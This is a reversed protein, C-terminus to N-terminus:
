VSRRNASSAAKFENLIMELTKGKTEPMIMCAFCVAGFCVGAFLVFCGSPTLASSVSTFFYTVVFGTSWNVLTAVACAPSRVHVPFIEGMFLWPVPGMGLSFAVIYGVLSMLALVSPNSNPNLFFFALVLGSACMGGASVALLMTRGAKDMLVISVGTFAVQFSMIIAGGVNANSLGATELIQGSYFIVANIGSFQQFLMIAVGMTLPRRMDPAMLMSIVSQGHQGADSVSPLRENDEGSKSVAEYDVVHNIKTDSRNEKELVKLEYDTHLASGGRLFLLSKRALESQGTKVLYTPSEPMFPMLLALLASFLAAVWALFRWMPLSGQCYFDDGKAECKWDNVIDKCSLDYSKSHLWVMADDDNADPLCKILTSQHEEAAIGVVYAVLIGITVAFQNGAGFTGRLHTPSVEGIYLPVAMSIIGVMLGVIFRAAILEQYSDALATWIWAGLFPIAVISITTKRGFKDCAVGGMISGIMAGITLISSFLSAEDSDISVEDHSLENLTTDGFPADSKLVRMATLVPSTFGLSYGFVFPGICAVFVAVTVNLTPAPEALLRKKMNSESQSESTFSDISNEPLLQAEM